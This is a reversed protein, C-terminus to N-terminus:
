GMRDAETRAPAAAASTSAPHPLLRTVSSCRAPHTNGLGWSELTLPCSSSWQVEAWHRREHYSACKESRVAPLETEPPSYIVVASLNYCEDTLYPWAGESHANGKPLFSLAHIGHKGHLHITHWNYFLLWSGWIGSACSLVSLLKRYHKPYECETLLKVM